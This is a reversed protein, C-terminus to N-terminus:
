VLSVPLGLIIKWSKFVAVQGMIYDYGVKGAEAQIIKLFVRLM